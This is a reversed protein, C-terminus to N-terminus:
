DAVIRHLVSVGLNRAGFAIEPIVASLLTVLILAVFNEAGNMHNWAPIFRFLRLSVFTFTVAYSRVMWVRHRQINRNRAAVLAVGTTTVWVGSQIATTITFHMVKFDYHSAAVAVAIPAAVFVSGMYIRGMVRHFKPYRRRLRSSFQLPGSVLAIMGGLAHFVILVPVTSLFAQERPLELLPVEIYFWIVITACIMLAWLLYKPWRRRM